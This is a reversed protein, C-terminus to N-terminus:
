GANSWVPLADILVLERDDLPKRDPPPFRGALTLRMLEELHRAIAAETYHEARDERRLTATPPFGRSPLAPRVVADWVNLSQGTGPARGSFIAYVPLACPEPAALRRHVPETLREVVLAVAGCDRARRAEAFLRAAEQADAGYRRNPRGQPTYGIHAVVPVGRASLAELVAFDDDRALELKVAEAGAEAMAAVSRIARDPNSASGDPLDGLLWPVAPGMSADRATRVEALLRCLIGLVREQEAADVIRTTSGGLHTMLYSDGVMLCDIGADIGEAALAAAARATARTESGTYLNIKLRPREPMARRAREQQALREVILARQMM